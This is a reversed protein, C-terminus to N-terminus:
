HGLVSKVWMNDVHQFIVNVNAKASQILAVATHLDKHSKKNLKMAGSALGVAFESDCLVTITDLKRGQQEVRKRLDDIYLLGEILTELEAQNNSRNESKSQGNFQFSHTVGVGGQWHTSQVQKGNHFVTMSGYMQREAADKHNNNLCGGDVLVCIGDLNPKNM